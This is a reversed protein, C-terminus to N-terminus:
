PKAKAEADHGAALEEFDKALEDFKAAIKKCHGSRAVAGPNKSGYWMTMKRHRAASEKAEAAKARFHTALAEHEAPTNAGEILVKELSDDAQALSV